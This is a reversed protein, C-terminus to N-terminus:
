TDNDMDKRMQPSRIDGLMHKMWPFWKGDSFVHGTILGVKVLAVIATTAMLIVQMM